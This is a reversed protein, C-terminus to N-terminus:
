SLSTSVPRAIPPSAVAAAGDGRTGPPADRRSAPLLADYIELLRAIKAPWTFDSRVRRHGAEGMRARLGADAALRRMARALDHVAAAPIEAAIPAGTEPTVLVGPGGLDLCVVPRRAAMAELCVFGGSDHLSPHVLVHSEGMRALTEDRSLRGWFRVQRAIGLRGALARLRAEDPGEGVIWYEADRLGARAFAELGLHFGKWHLLRGASLFRVPAPPPAPQAGLRDVETETLACATLLRVDPAGLAQLRAMTEATVGLALASRRATRHVLPDHEGIRRFRDRMREFRRGGADLERYFAPPATEGGGVPGWVYPVPLGALLSPMWYRVYTVHQALDFGVARHLRRAVRAAGLQWLYYHLEMAAKHDRYDFRAPWGPVEYSVVHLGPVPHAALGAEIAPRFTSRVLVWVDHHRALGTAINWGVEPESGEGPACTYASLLIRRRKM